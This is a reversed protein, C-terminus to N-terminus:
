SEYLAIPMKMSEGLLSNNCSASLYRFRGCGLPDILLRNLM